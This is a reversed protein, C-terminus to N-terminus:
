WMMNFNRYSKTYTMLGMIDPPVQITGDPLQRSILKYTGEITPTSSVQSPSGEAAFSVAGVMLVLLMSMTSLIGYAKMRMGKRRHLSNRCRVCTRAYVLVILPDITARAPRM